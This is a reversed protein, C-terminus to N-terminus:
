YPDLSNAFFILSRCFNDSALLIAELAINERHFMHITSM